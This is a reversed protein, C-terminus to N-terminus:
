MESHNFEGGKDVIETNVLKREVLLFQMLM